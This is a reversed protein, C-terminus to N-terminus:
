RALYRLGRTPCTNRTMSSVCARANRGDTASSRKCASYENASSVPSRCPSNSPNDQASTSRARPFSRTSWENCRCAPSSRSTGGFVARLRRTTDSGVTATRESRPRRHVRLLPRAAGPRQLRHHRRVDPHGSPQDPLEPQPPSPGGVHASFTGGLSGIAM